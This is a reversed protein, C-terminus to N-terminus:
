RNNLLKSVGIAEVLLFTLIPLLISVKEPKTLGTESFISDQYLLIFVGFKVLMLGLYLYGTENPLYNIVIEVAIYTVLSAILNFVYVSLLSFSLSVTNKEIFYNNVFFGLAALAAVVITFIIIRKIM